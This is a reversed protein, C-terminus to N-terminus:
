ELNVFINKRLMDTTRTAKNYTFSEVHGDVMLANAKTDRNHRFRINGQNKPGDTNIYQENGATIPYPTLDVPQGINVAPNFLNPPAPEIFYPKSWSNPFVRGKDLGFAVSYSQWSLNDISGDFLIAVESARKIKALRYGRMQSTGGPRTYDRSRLDPIIRPHSSYNTVFANSTSVFANEPCLFIARLGADGTGTQQQTAYDSGKKNMVNILLVTWDTTEGNYVKGGDLQDGKVMFGFPLAGKNLSAYIPIAQGISRLNSMCKVQNASAKARGLAPLLIGVLIAIIGIVVLLEVLTFGGARAPANRLHLRSM